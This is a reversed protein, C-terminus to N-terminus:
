AAHGTPSLRSVRWLREESADPWIVRPSPTPTIHGCVLGLDARQTYGNARADQALWWDCCMPQGEVLRFELAELVPRRILTCAMGVGVVDIVRGWTARAREPMESLVRGLPQGEEEVRASWVPTGHRWCALGYAIDAETALLRELADPPVIIDDELCVLADYKGRLAVNRARAYKWTINLYAGGLTGDTFPDDNALLLYDVPCPWRVAQHSVLAQPYRHYLPTVILLRM